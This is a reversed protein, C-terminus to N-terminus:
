QAAPEVRWKAWPEAVNTGPEEEISRKRKRGGWDSPTSSMSSYELKKGQATRGGRKTDDNAARDIASKGTGQHRSGSKALKKGRSTNSLREGHRKKGGGKGRGSKGRLRSGDGRLRRRSYKRKEEWGWSISPV